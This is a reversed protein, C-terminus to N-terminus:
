KKLVFHTSHPSSVHEACQFGLALLDIGAFLHEGSGLLIPAIAIHMEDVLGARIHTM